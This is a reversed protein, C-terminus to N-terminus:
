RSAWHTMSVLHVRTEPRTSAALLQIASHICDLDMQVFDRFVSLMEYVIVITLVLPNLLTAINATAPFMRGGM